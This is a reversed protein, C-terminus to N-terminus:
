EDVELPKTLRFTTPLSEWSELSTLGVILRESGARRAVEASDVLLELECTTEDDVFRRVVDVRPQSHFQRDLDETGFQVRLGEISRILEARRADNEALPVRVVIADLSKGGARSVGAERHIAARFRQKAGFERTAPKDRSSQQLDSWAVRQEPPSDAVSWSAAIRAGQGVPWEALTLDWTPTPASVARCTMRMPRWDARAGRPVVEFCVDAPWPVIAGRDAHDLGVQLEARPEAAARDIKFSKCGFWWTGAGAPVAVDGENSRKRNFIAEKRLIARREWDVFFDWQEGGQVVLDVPNPFGTYALTYRGPDITHADLPLARDAIQSEDSRKLTVHRRSSTAEILKRGLTIGDPAVEFAIENDNCAVQFRAWKEQDEGEGLKNRFAVIVVDIGKDKFKRSVEGLKVKGVDPNAFEDPFGDTLVVVANLDRQEVYRVDVYELAAVLPTNGCGSLKDVVDLIRQKVDSISNLKVLSMVDASDKAPYRTNDDHFDWEPGDSEFKWQDNLYWPNSARRGARHGYAFLGVRYKPNTQAITTVCRKLADRAHDFRRRGDAMTNADDVMSYSCDLVFVIGRQDSGSVSVVAANGASPSWEVIRAPKRCPDVVFTTSPDDKLIRGRYFAVPKFTLEGCPEGGEAASDPARRLNFRASGLQQRGSSKARQEAQALREVAITKEAAADGVLRVAPLGAPVDAEASGRPVVVNVTVPQSQTPDTLRVPKGSPDVERLELALKDGAAALRTPQEKLRLWDACQDPELGAVALPSDDGGVAALLHQAASEAFWAKRPDGKAEVWFGDLLRAALFLHSDAIDLARLQEVPNQKLSVADYGHLLRAIFAARQLERRRDVISTASSPQCAIEIEGRMARWRQRINQGLDWATKFNAADFSHDQRHAYLQEWDDLITKLLAMQLKGDASRWEYDTPDLKFVECAWLAQWLAANIESTLRDATDNANVPQMEGDGAAAGRALQSEDLDNERDIVGRVLAARTRSDFRAFQLANRLEWRHSSTAKGLAEPAKSAERELTAVIEDHLARASEADKQLSDAEKQLAGGGEATAKGAADEGLRELARRLKRTNRFLNLIKAEVAAEGTAPDIISAAAVEGAGGSAYDDHFADLLAGRFASDDVHRNAAWRAQDPLEALLLALISQARAVAQAVRQATQYEEEAQKQLDAVRAHDDPGNAAFLADEAELRRVDARAVLTQVYPLTGLPPSAAADSLDRLALAKERLAAPAEFRPAWPQSLSAQLVGRSSPLSAGRSDQSGAQLGADRPPNSRLTELEKAASSAYAQGRADDGELLCAEAQMLFEHAQRWRLPNYDWPSLQRLKDRLSWADTLIGSLLDTSAAVAARDVDSAASNGSGAGVSKFLPVAAKAASKGADVGDVIGWPGQRLQPDRADRIWAATQHHLYPILETAWLMPEAKKDNQNLEDRHDAEGLAGRELFHVFVSEGLRRSTWSREGTAAAVVVALNSIGQVDEHLSGTATRGSGDACWLFNEIFGARWDPEIRDLNLLVLKPVGALADGRLSEWLSSIPITDDGEATPPDDPSRLHRMLRIEVAPGDHVRRALASVYVVLANAKGRRAPIEAFDRIVEVNVTQRRTTSSLNSALERLAAEDRLAFPNRMAPYDDGTYEPTFVFITTEWPRNQLFQLIFWIGVAVVVVGLLAAARKAWLLRRV